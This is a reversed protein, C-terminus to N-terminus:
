EIHWYMRKEQVGLIVDLIKGSEDFLIVAEEGKMIM